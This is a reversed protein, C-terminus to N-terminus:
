RTALCGTWTACPPLHVPPNVGADVAVEWREWAGDPVDISYHLVRVTESFCNSCASQKIGDCPARHHRSAAIM